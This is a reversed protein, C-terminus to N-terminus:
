HLTKVHVISSLLAGLTNNIHDLEVLHDIAMQIFLFLAPYLFLIHIRCWFSLWIVYVSGRCSILGLLRDLSFFFCLNLKGIQHYIYCNFYLVKKKWFRPPKQKSWLINPTLRKSSVNDPITLNIKRVDESGRWTNIPFTCHSYVAWWLKSIYGIIEFFFFIISLICYLILNYIGVSTGGIYRPLTLWCM